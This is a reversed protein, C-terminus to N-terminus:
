AGPDPLEGSGTRRDRLTRPRGDTGIGGAAPAAGREFRRARTGSDTRCDGAGFGGARGFRRLDVGDAGLGSRAQVDPQVGAGCGYSDGGFLVRRARRLEAPSIWSGLREAEM